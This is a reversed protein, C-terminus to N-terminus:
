SDGGGPSASGALERGIQAAHQDMDEAEDEFQKADDEYDQADSRLDDAKEHDEDSEADDEVQDAEAHEDAARELNQQAEIRRREALERLRAVERKALSKMLEEVAAMAARLVPLPERRWAVARLQESLEKQERFEDLASRAFLLPKGPQDDRKGCSEPGRGMSRSNHLAGTSIELHRAAEATTFLDAMSIM